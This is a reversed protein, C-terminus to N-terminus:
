GGGIEDEPCAKEPIDKPERAFVGFKQPIDSNEHVKPISLCGFTRGLFGLSRGRPIM